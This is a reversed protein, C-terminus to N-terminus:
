SGVAVVLMMPVTMMFMAMMMMMLMMMMMMMQLVTEPVAKTLIPSNVAVTMAAARRWECQQLLRYQTIIPRPAWNGPNCVVRILTDTDAGVNFQDLRRPRPSGCVDKCTVLPAPCIVPFKSIALACVLAGKRLMLDQHASFWHIIVEIAVYGVTILTAASAGFNFYPM